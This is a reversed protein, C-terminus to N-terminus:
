MSVGRDEVLTSDAQEYAAESTTTSGSGNQQVSADKLEEKEEVEAGPQSELSQAADQAEQARSGGEEQMGSEGKREEQIDQKGESASESFEDARASVLAVPVVTSATEFALAEEKKEEEQKAEEQRWGPVQRRALRSPSEVVQKAEEKLSAEKEEESAPKAEEDIPEGVVADTGHRNDMSRENGAAAMSANVEAAPAIVAGDRTTTSDVEANPEASPMM